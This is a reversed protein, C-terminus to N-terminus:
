KGAFSQVVKAADFVHKAQGSNMGPSSPSGLSPSGGGPLGPVAPKEVVTVKPGMESLDSDKAAQWSMKMGTNYEGAKAADTVRYKWTFTVTTARWPKWGSSSFVVNGKSTDLWKNATSPDAWADENYKYAASGAVYEFGEPKMDELRTIGHSNFWSNANYTVTYTLVDGKQAVAPGPKGEVAVSRTVRSQNWSHTASSSSLGATADAVAAAPNSLAAGLDAPAAPAAMAPAATAAMLGAAIAVGAARSGIVNRRNKM